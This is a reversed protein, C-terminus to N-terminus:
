LVNSRLLANLHCKLNGHLKNTSNTGDTNQDMRGNMEEDDEGSVNLNM